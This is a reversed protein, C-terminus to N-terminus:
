YFTGLLPPLKILNILYGGSWCAFFLIILGFLNGGPMAEKDTM